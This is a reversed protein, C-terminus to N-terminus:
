RLPVSSVLRVQNVAVLQTSLLPMDDPVRYEYWTVATLKSPMSPTFDAATVATGTPMAKIAVGVVVDISTWNVSGTSRVM